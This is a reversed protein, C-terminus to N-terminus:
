YSPEALPILSSNAAQPTDTTNKALCKWWEVDMRTKSLENEFIGLFQECKRAQISNETIRVKDYVFPLGGWGHKGSDPGFMPHTCVIGFSPPLVELFLNRPFQKVSLVDAFITDSKLRHIPINRLVNETSLISSCILIVDPQKSCMGDIDRFYEIGHQKCYDSYDSRSTALVNYGQRRLGKAIFQGFNGFGVIGVTLPPEHVALFPEISPADLQNFIHTHKSRISKLRIKNFDTSTLMNPTSSKSILPIQNSPITPPPYQAKSQITSKCHCLHFSAM